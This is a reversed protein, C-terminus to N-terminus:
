CTLKVKQLHKSTNQHTQFQRYAKNLWAFHEMDTHVHEIRRNPKQAAKAWRCATRCMQYTLWTNSTNRVHECTKELQGHQGAHGAHGNWGQAKRARGHMTSRGQCTLRPKRIRKCTNKLQGSHQACTHMGEAHRPLEQAWRNQRPMAKHEWTLRTTELKSPICQYEGAHWWGYKHTSCHWAHRDAREAHGHSKQTRSQELLACSQM